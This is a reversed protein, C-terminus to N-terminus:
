PGPPRRGNLVIVGAGREALWRAVVTGIGGLGGTVLYSRDPRLQGGALRPMVMVNKGIHRASRMFEM